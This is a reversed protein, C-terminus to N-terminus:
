GDFGKRRGASLLERYCDFLRRQMSRTSYHRRQRDQAAAALRASLSADAMLRGIADALRPACGPPVLLGAGNDLLERIGAIDSAVIPRGHAMAELLAMPLGEGYLSPLVFVDCADLLQTMDEVFGLYEVHSDLNLRSVQARIAAEHGPDAFEGALRLRFDRGGDRLLAAADVLHELGKRDRFLAACLLTFPRSRTTRWPQTQPRDAVGNPVLSIRGPAIGYRHEVHRALAPSVAVVRDAHRLVAWEALHNSLNLHRRASEHLAPSHVHHLWPLGTLRQVRRAVLASRVTHSHLLACNAAEALTAAARAVGFDVRSRMPLDHMAVDATSMRQRMTGPKLLALVLRFRETAGAAALEDVVRELGSYQEGNLLHLVPTPDTM